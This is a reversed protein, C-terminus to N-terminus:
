KWIRQNESYLKVPTVVKDIGQTGITNVTNASITSALWIVVVKEAGTPANGSKMEGSIPPPNNAPAMPAEEAYLADLAFGLAILAVFLLKKM